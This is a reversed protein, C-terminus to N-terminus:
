KKWTQSGQIDAELLALVRRADGLRVFDDLQREVSDAATEDMLIWPTSVSFSSCVFFYSGM